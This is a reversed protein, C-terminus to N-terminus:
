KSLSYNFALFVVLSLAFISLVKFVRYSKEKGLHRYFFACLLIYWVLITWMWFSPGVSVIKADGADSTGGYKFVIVGFFGELWFLFLLIRSLLMKGEEGKTIKTVISVAPFLFYAPLYLAIIGFWGIILLDKGYVFGAGNYNTDPVEISSWAPYFLAVGFILISVFPVLYNELRKNEASYVVNQTKYKKSKIVITGALKDHWGQKKRDFAIWIFGLGLPLFSIFYALYRVIAQGISISKGTVADVIQVGVMMKGPTAQKQLWFVIVVIAPLVWSIIFDTPGAIFGTKEADFYAWGYIYVLPPFTLLILLVTDILTASFRVWFGAYEMEQEQM